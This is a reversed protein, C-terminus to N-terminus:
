LLVKLMLQLPYRNLSLHVRSLLSWAKRTKILSSLMSPICMIVLRRRYRLKLLSRLCCAVEPWNISLEVKLMLLLLNFMLLVRAVVLGVKRKNIWSYLCVHIVHYFLNFFLDDSFCTDSFLSSLDCAAISNEPNNLLLSLKACIRWGSRLLGLILDSKFASLIVIRRRCDVDRQFRTINTALAAWGELIGRFNGECVGRHRSIGKFFFIWHLFLPKWMGIWRSVFAWLIIRHTLCASNQKKLFALIKGILINCDRRLVM